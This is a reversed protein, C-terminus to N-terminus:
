CAVACSERQGSLPERSRASHAASRACSITPLSTHPGRARAFAVLIPQSTPSPMPHITPAASACQVVAAFCRHASYRVDEDQNQCRTSPLEPGNMGYEVRGNDKAMVDM